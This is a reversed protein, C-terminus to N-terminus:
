FEMLFWNLLKSIRCIELESCLDRSEEEMVVTLLFLYSLINMRFNLVIFVAVLRSFIHVHLVRIPHLKKKKLNHYFYITAKQSIIVKTILVAHFLFLKVTSQSNKKKKSTTKVIWSIKKESRLKTRDLCFIERTRAFYVKIMTEIISQIWHYIFFSLANWLKSKENSMLKLCMWCFILFHDQLCLLLLLCKTKLTM